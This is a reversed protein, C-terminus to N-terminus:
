DHGKPQELGYVHAEKVDLEDIVFGLARRETVMRLIFGPPTEVNGLWVGTSDFVSWRSPDTIPSRENPVLWRYEEVWISGDPGVLLDSVAPLVEAYRGDKFRQRMQVLFQETVEPSSRMRDLAWELLMVRLEDTVPRSEHARRIIRELRGDGAHVRVEFADGRVFYLRDGAVAQRMYPSFWLQEEASGSWYVQGIEFRGLTDWSEAEPQLRVLLHKRWAPGPGESTDLRGRPYALFSGDDYAADIGATFGLTGREPPQTQIMPMRLQRAFRGDPDFVTLKDGSMDFGIISDGRYTSAWWLQGFEGPGQGERGAQNLFVGLSDYILIADWGAQNGDAIIIRGRSDVDISTPDLLRNEDSGDSAHIIFLPEESLQWGEGQSWRPAANEVIQIGASDRTNSAATSSPPDDGSTCAAVSLVILTGLHSLVSARHSSPDHSM